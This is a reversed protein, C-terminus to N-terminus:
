LQKITRELQKKSDAESKAARNKSKAARAQANALDKMVTKQILQNLEQLLIQYNSMYIRSLAMAIEGLDYAVKPDSSDRFEELATTAARFTANMQSRFADLNAIDLNSFALRANQIRSKGAERVTDARAQLSAKEYLGALQEALLNFKEACTMGARSTAESLQGEAKEAAAKALLDRYEGTNAELEPGLQRVDTWNPSASPGSDIMTMEVLALENQAGMDAAGVAIKDAQAMFADVAWAIAACGAIIILFVLSRKVPKKM